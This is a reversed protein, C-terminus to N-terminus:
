FYVGLSVRGGWDNTQQKELELDVGADTVTLSAGEEFHMWFPTISLEYRRAFTFMCPLQVLYNNKRKLEWFAGSLTSISAMSLVDPIWEFDLGINVTKDPIYNILLGLPIYVKYYNLKLEELTGSNRHQINWRFGAGTYVTMFCSFDRTLAGDYGIRTEVIEDHIFRKKNGTDHSEISGLAYSTQLVAYLSNPKKYEYGLIFGGLWGTFPHPTATAPVAKDDTIRLHYYYAQGGGYLRSDGIDHCGSRRPYYVSNAYASSVLILLALTLFSFRM